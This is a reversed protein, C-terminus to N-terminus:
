LLEHITERPNTQYSGQLIRVRGISLFYKLDEKPVGMIEAAEVYDLQQIDVLTVAIRVMSPLPNLYRRLEEFCLNVVIGLLWVQFPRRRVQRIKQFASIFVKQTTNEAAQADSLAYYALNYVRDQYTLVLNNFAELDGKKASQILDKEDM